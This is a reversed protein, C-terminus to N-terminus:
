YILNSFLGEEEIKKFFMCLIQIIEDKCIEYFEATFGDPVQHIQKDTWTIPLNIVESEAEKIYTNPNGLDRSRSHTKTTNKLFNTWKM